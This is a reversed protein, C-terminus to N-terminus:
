SQCRPQNVATLAPKGLPFVRGEHACFEVGFLLGRLARGLGCTGGICSLRRGEKTPHFMIRLLM